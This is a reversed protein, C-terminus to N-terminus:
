RFLRPGTRKLWTHLHRSMRNRIPPLSRAFSVLPGIRFPHRLLHAILKGTTYEGTTVDYCCGLTDGPLEAHADDSVIRIGIFPLGFEEVVKVIHAQEMDCLWAGTKEFLAKKGAATGAFEDVTALKAVRPREETPLLPLLYEAGATVFIDELKLSPELAGAFGALIVGHITEPKPSQTEPLPSPNDILPENMGREANRMGCKRIVERARLASHPMGMGIIAVMVDEGGIKGTVTEPKGIRGRVGGEIVSLFTKAEFDSPILILIM